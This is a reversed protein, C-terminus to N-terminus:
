DLKVPRDARVFLFLVAGIFAFIGGSAIAFTWGYSQALWPVLIAGIAGSANGGTNMLGGTTGAFQGGIAISAAWYAGETLQNFFFCQGLMVVALIPSSNIAGGILLLASIVMGIIVPWRCGWRLGLRQCLRDCVWGGLAAGVAGALWQSSTMWGAVEVSFGKHEVLYFYFWSFVEYFVFTMCSYSLTLLLADRNKLVRIWGPPPPLDKITPSRDANILDLEAQNVAAHEAPEDKAYWWWFAVFVLGLPAMIIFSVRWGVQIIMWPLIPAIAVIGLTLGTSSLGCPLAQGGTPFWREIVCNQVPFIPAHVIGVIFRVAILSILVVAASAMGRGPVLATLVTLITWLVGIVALARKPGFKDGLMGGPFQFLAYGAPFAALIYGFQIETLALDSIMAPAAISINSRLVYSVFSGFALIIFLRWRVFSPINNINNSRTKLRNLWRRCSYKAM